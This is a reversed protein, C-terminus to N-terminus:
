GNSSPVLFTRTVNEGILAPSIQSTKRPPLLKGALGCFTDCIIASNEFFALPTIVTPCSTLLFARQNRELLKPKRPNFTSCFRMKESVSIGVTVGVSEGLTIGYKNVSNYV